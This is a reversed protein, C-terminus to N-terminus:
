YFSSFTRAPNNATYCLERVCTRANSKNSSRISYGYLVAGRGANIERTWNQLVIPPPFLFWGYRQEDDRRRTTQSETHKCYTRAYLLLTINVKVNVNVNVNVVFFFIVFLLFKVFKGHNHRFTQQNIRLFSTSYLAHVSSSSSILDLSLLLMTMMM